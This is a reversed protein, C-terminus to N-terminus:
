TFYLLLLQNRDPIWGLLYGWNLQDLRQIAQKRFDVSGGGLM